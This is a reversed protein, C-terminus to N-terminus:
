NSFVNSIIHNDDWGMHCVSGCSCCRWHVDKLLFNKGWIIVRHLMSFESNVYGALSLPSNADCFNQDVEDTSLTLTVGAKLEFSQTTSGKKKTEQEVGVATKSCEFVGAPLQGAMAVPVCENPVAGAACWTCSENSDCSESVSLAMCQALLESDDGERLALGSIRPSSNSAPSAGRLKSMPSYQTESAVAAAIGTVAQANTLGLPTALLSTVALASLKM